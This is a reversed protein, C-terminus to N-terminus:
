STHFSKIVDNRAPLPETGNPFGKQVARTRKKRKLKKARESVSVSDGVGVSVGFGFPFRQKTAIYCVKQRQTAHRCKIIAM